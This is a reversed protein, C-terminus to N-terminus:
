AKAKETPVPILVPRVSLAGARNVYLSREPDLVYTGAPYPRDREDIFLDFRQALGDKGLLGCSQVQFSGSGDRRRMTRVPSDSVIFLQM